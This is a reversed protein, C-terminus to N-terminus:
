KNITNNHTQQEVLNDLGYFVRRTLVSIGIMIFGAMYFPIYISSGIHEFVIGYIFQGLPITCMAVCMFCSIIKGILDKPTLLQLYTMMQIQFLTHFTLLLGCGIILIIYIGMPANLTQLVVGSIVAFLSCGILLVPSAKSKLRSSLVGALLGGSIAGAAIVGQAYGYLRNAVDPTFGLHQTIIVPIGILILASLLVNSSAFILSIKWLVPQKSFMFRFSEKLDGLGTAFINGTAKKKEFPIHIFIEMVASALFCGISVYLIPTLGFVSFLLGGIVPGAMSASSSIMDVVSNAKMIHEPEVLVPVSAKVAPQYAGQIGYLIIMTIAVLSVIDIKGALLYFLFIISATSFDLVVMINRKNVRDAIIGGIPFFLIMPIFSLALITGFLAASGTQNLLYLPLAYRLIQNGFISIIQGVAVLIFDKKFITKKNM